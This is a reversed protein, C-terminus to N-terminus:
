IRNNYKNKGSLVLVLILGVIALLSVILIITVPDISSSDKTTPSTIVDGDGNPMESGSDGSSGTGNLSAEFIIPKNDANNKTINWVYQDGIVQDANHNTVKYETTVSVKVRDLFQYKDFCGMKNGSTIKLTGSEKYVKFLDYCNHVAFSRQYNENNKYRYSYKVGLGDGGIRSINYYEVNSLKADDDNAYEDYYVKQYGGIASEFADRMTYNSDSDISSNLNNQNDEYVSLDESIGSSEIEINYNATCGSLLVIVACLVILKIKKM